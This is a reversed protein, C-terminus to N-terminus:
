CVCMASGCFFLTLRVARQGSGGVLRGRGRHRDTFSQAIPTVRCCGTAAHSWTLLVCRASLAAAHGVAFPSALLLRARSAPRTCVGARQHFGRVAAKGKKGKAGGGKPTKPKSSRGMITHTSTTYLM